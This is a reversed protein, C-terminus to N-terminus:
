VRKRVFIRDSAGRVSHLCCQEDPDSIGPKRDSDFLSVAGIPVRLGKRSNPLLRGIRRLTEPRARKNELDGMGYSHECNRPHRIRGITSVRVGGQWDTKKMELLEDLKEFIDPMSTAFKRTYTM